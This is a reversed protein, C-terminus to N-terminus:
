PNIRSYSVLQHYEGYYLEIKTDNWTWTYFDDGWLDHREEYNSVFRNILTELVKDFLETNHDLNVISHALGDGPIHNFIYDIRMVLGKGAYYLEYDMEGVLEHTEMAKIEEKTSYWDTIPDMLVFSDLEDSKSCASLITSAFLCIILVRKM